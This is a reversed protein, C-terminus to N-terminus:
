SIEAGNISVALVNTTGATAKITAAAAMIFYCSVNIFDNAPITVTKMAVQADGATTGDPDIWITITADVATTNAVNINKVIATTLAPVTYLTDTGNTVLGHSLNKETFTSM